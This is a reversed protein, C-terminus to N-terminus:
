MKTQRNNWKLMEYISNMTNNLIYAIIAQKIVLDKSRLKINEVFNSHVTSSNLYTNLAMDIVYLMYIGTM